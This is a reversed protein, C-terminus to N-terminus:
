HFVKLSKKQVYDQLPFKTHTHTHKKKEVLGLITIRKEDGLLFSPQTNPNGTKNAADEKEEEEM